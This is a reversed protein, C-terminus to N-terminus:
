LCVFSEFFFVSWNGIVDAIVDSSVQPATPDKTITNNCINEQNQYHFLKSFRNIVPLTILRVFITGIKQAVRHYLKCATM